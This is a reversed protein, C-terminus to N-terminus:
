RVRADQQCAEEGRAADGFHGVEHRDLARAPPVRDHTAGLGDAALHAEAHDALRPEVIRSRGVRDLAGCVPHTEDGRARRHHGKVQAGRHGKALFGARGHGLCAAPQHTRM